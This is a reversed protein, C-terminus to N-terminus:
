ISLFKTGAPSALSAYIWDSKIFANPGLGFIFVSADIRMRECAYLAMM